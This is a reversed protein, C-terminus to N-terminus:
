TADASCRKKVSSTRPRNRFSISLVTQMFTALDEKRDEQKKKRILERQELLRKKREEQNELEDKEKIRRIDEEKKM